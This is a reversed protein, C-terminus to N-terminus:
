RRRLRQQLGRARRVAGLAGRELRGIATYGLADRVAAETARAGAGDREAREARVEAEGLPHLVGDLARAAADRAEHDRHAALLPETTASEDPLAPAVFADHAGVLGACADFLARQEATVRADRGFASRDHRSHRLSAALFARIEDRPVGADIQGHTALFGELTDVSSPDDLLADYDFVLVPLGHADRLALRLYREWLAFTYVAAFTNRRQLSAAIDLPNRLVVIAIDSASDRAALVTRWFPLLVSVRPDKFVWRDGDYTADFEARARERLDAFTADEGFHPAPVAPADWAGGLRALVADNVEMLALHEWFGAPNDAQVPMLRKVRGIPVGLLNVVRTVASTGSRHMGLVYVGM